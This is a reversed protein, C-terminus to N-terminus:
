TTSQLGSILECKNPGVFVVTFIEQTEAQWMAKMHHGCLWSDPIWILHKHNISKGHTFVMEKLKKFGIELLYEEKVVVCSLYDNVM